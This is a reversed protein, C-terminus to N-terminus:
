SGTSVGCNSPVKRLTFNGGSERASPLYRQTPNYPSGTPVESSGLPSHLACNDGSKHAGPSTARPPTTRPDLQSRAAGRSAAFHAVTAM